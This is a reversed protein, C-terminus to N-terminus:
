ANTLRRLLAIQGTHYCDHQIVGHLMVYVNYPKEPVPGTLDEDSLSEIARVLEDRAKAVDSQARAWAAESTDTVPPWDEETTLTVATGALRRRVASEWASIHLLTEWISHAAALPRRAAQEAALGTLLVKLSPGHWADGETARRLQDAIRHVETNM